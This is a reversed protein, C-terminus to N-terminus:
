FSSAMRIHVYGRSAWGDYRRVCARVFPYPHADSSPQFACTYPHILVFRAKIEHQKAKGKLSSPSEAEAYKGTYHTRMPRAIGVHEYVTPCYQKNGLSIRPRFWRSLSNRIALLVVSRFWCTGSFLLSFTAHVGEMYKFLFDNQIIIRDRFNLKSKENKYFIYWLTNKLIFRNM